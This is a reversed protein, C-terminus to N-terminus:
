DNDAEMILTDVDGDADKWEFESKISMTERKQALWDKDRDILLDVEHLADEITENDYVELEIKYRYSETIIVEIKEM